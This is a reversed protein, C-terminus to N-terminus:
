GRAYAKISHLDTYFLNAYNELKEQLGVTKAARETFETAAKCAELLQACNNCFDVAAKNMIELTTQIQVGVLTQKEAIQKQRYQLYGMVKMIDQMLLVFKTELLAIREKIAAADQLLSITQLEAILMEFSNYHAMQRYQDQMVNILLQPSVQRQPNIRLFVGRQAPDQLQTYEKMFQDLSDMEHFWTQSEKVYNTALATILANGALKIAGWGLNKGKELLSDTIVVPVEGMTKYAGSQYMQYVYLGITGFLATMATYKKLQLVRAQTPMKEAQEQVGQWSYNFQNEIGYLPQFLLGLVLLVRKM